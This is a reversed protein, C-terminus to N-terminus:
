RVEQDWPARQGREAMTKVSQKLPYTEKVVSRKIGNADRYTFEVTFPKSYDVAQDELIPQAM